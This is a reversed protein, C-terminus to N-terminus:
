DIIQRGCNAAVKKPTMCGVNIWGLQAKTITAPPVGAAVTWFM